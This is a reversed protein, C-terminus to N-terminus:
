QVTARFNDAQQQVNGQNNVVQIGVKGTSFTSDNVNLKNVGGFDLSLTSGTVRGLIHFAVKKTPNSISTYALDTQVGNVIKSIYLRSTGGTVRHVLYYNRPDKYRLVIGFKPGLNNDVSTFDAEVTETAGSLATVFSLNTGTAGLRTKLLNGGVVLNGSVATWSTGLSAADARDFSDSFTGGTGGGGPTTFVIYSSSATASAAAANSNRATAGIPYTGNPATFSSTVKLTTSSSAGPALSLSAATLAGTWGAPVTSTVTFASTTCPSVDRNTVSLTYSLQTGAPVRAPPASLSVLPSVHTCSPVPTPTPSPPATPPPTPPATPPATPSPTPTPTPPPTGGMTVSVSADTASVSNVTISVGSVSDTWTQGVTLAPDSFSDSSTMDLLDSSNGDSLSALHVVVGNTVNGNGVLGADFGVGRRLELYFYSGTTARAIKLAKPTSGTTEM